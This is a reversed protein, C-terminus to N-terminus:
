ERMIRRAEESTRALSVPINRIETRTGLRREEKSVVVLWDCYEFAYPINGTSMSFVGQLDFAKLATICDKIREGSLKSFAEDIPVLGLSPEQKRSSYRRYARLYSALIAIFYPSQNEGGSFKGSHRDVSTKRGDAEVVEMDYEFYHRYDLLRAAEAGDPAETLTKLFHNIADRFRQDASAFFLDDERASASAELLEHYLRYDPNRAYRLQYTNNGIPRKKLSGNLLVILNEVERLAGWLKELIQTRFLAEWNKREREAKARYDPIESENLKALQKDHAKNTESEVPLDDFKAHALALERRKAKLDEWAAAADRECAHFQESFRNAAIDKVPFRALVNTRLEELRKLWPSIDTRDRITHFRKELEKENESATNLERELRRVEARKESRDLARREDEMAKLNEELKSQEQALEDFKSRDIRNLKSINEELEAKLRPLDQARALDQYLSPAIDFHERWGENLSKLAREIPAFKREETELDKVQKEKWVRQQELGKEGIFPNGDYFRPREVFAGRTMFGDPLIAFDHNRLEELNEVCILNGFAESIIAEAVPHNTKLKEALSGRHITKRRQLAKTPNVLSERGAESGLESPKLGHYIKEAQDYHEPAVVVAFKRAFAVEIAPRWREEAVECLARLHKAPLDASRALLGNNLADLLRTPFPLKGVKLAAIEERLQGLQQRVESLRKLAPAAARSAAAAANQAATNLAPLTETAKAVGGGVASHIAQEVDDITTADLELPMSRLEKLWVRANRIRNALADDLSKGIGSLQSIQHTLETNRGKIFKYLQGESTQGIIADIKKSEARSREILQDLEALRKEEGATEQKLKSLRIDDADLQEKTHEHRLQAELYRSLARDRRLETWRTFTDCITRLKQLQDDLKRLDEEYRVFTRYSATVDSVDLKEGPLIFNRAFDNFSKLFTFSMATPLLARLVGRDFNLHTPQAMDRLYADLGESYLRGEHSEVLAKFSTYDLPRKEADLFDSRNLAAPILFPTTKGHAEAASAFEFRLGWTEARKGNPWTFEMAVYTIASQRMYKAVGGDDDKLDGLCYGKLSRDSRDGTASQNFRILRQDGVLVLQILDMLISKGSGTVGALLLNGEVSISDKYGYWNLAHIRTLRITRTM